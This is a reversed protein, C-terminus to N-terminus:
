STRGPDAEAKPYAGQPEAKKRATAERGTKREVPQANKNWEFTTRRPPAPRPPARPGQPREPRRGPPAPPPCCCRRGGPPQRVRVVVGPVGVTWSIVIRRTRSNPKRNVSTQLSYILIKSPAHTIIGHASALGSDGPKQVSALVRSPSPTARSAIQSTTRRPPAPRPPARTSSSTSTSNPGQM